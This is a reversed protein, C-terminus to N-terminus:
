ATRVELIKGSAVQMRGEYIRLGKGVVFGVNSLELGWFRLDATSEVGPEFREVGIPSAEFGFFTSGDRAVLGEIECVARWGAGRWGSAIAMEIAARLTIGTSM